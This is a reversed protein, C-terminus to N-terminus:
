AAPEAVAKAMRACPVTVGLSTPVEIRELLTFGYASYLPEGAVTAVLELTRFGERAAAEECLELVRRGIGRRTWDPHTYMARVRAPELAPDLLRADRGASHDGGFLTARRSWGGCGVIKGAGNEIAFYTGDEILQSDIGMIEFSAAVGQEDLYNGVLKRISQEMLPALEAMDEARALRHSFIEGGHRGQGDAFSRAGALYEGAALSNRGLRFENAMAEQLPLAVGALAARRDNRLCAQPLEALERALQEAADRGQGAPALRNALGIQLAEEASVPRGTLILDLARSLGILRPLRVTGGDILPVGLRRCFIGFTAGEEVVRLDCWLALECGGAVAYGAVAAIVPKGLELRTPGLPGKANPLYDALENLDGSAIAKLDAGACFHGGEGWLVAVAAHQDDEFELFAQYLAAATATDIANRVEPRSLIVTTVKGNKEVRVGNM